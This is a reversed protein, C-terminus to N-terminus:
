GGVTSAHGQGSPPRNKRCRVASCNGANLVFYCEALKLDKPGATAVSTSSTVSLTQPATTKAESPLTIAFALAFGIAGAKAVNAFVLTAM